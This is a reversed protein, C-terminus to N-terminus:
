TSENSHREREPDHQRRFAGRTYGTLSSRAFGDLRDLGHNLLAISLAIREAPTLSALEARGHRGPEQTIARRHGTTPGPTTQM